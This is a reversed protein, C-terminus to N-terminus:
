NEESRKRLTIDRAIASAGVTLGTADKIPSISVSVDLLSGAKTLRQTELSEISLGSRVREM